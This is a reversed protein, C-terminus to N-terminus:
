RHTLPIPRVGLSTQTSVTCTCAITSRQRSPLFGDNLAVAFVVTVCADTFCNALRGSFWTRHLHPYIIWCVSFRCGLMRIGLIMGIPTGALMVTVDADISAHWGAERQVLHPAPAEGRVRARDIQEQRRAEGLEHDAVTRMAAWFDVHQPEHVDLDQLGESPPQFYQTTYHSGSTLIDPKYSYKVHSDLNQHHCLDPKPTHLPCSTM